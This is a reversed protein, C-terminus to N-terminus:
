VSLGPLLSLMGVELNSLPACLVTVTMSGLLGWVGCLMEIFGRTGMGGDGLFGRQLLEVCGVSLMHRDSRPLFVFLEDDMIM